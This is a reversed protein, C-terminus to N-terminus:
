SIGGMPPIDAMQIQVFGSIHKGARLTRPAFFGM